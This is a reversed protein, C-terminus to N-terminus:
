PKPNRENVTYPETLEPNLTQRTTYLRPNPTGYHKSHVSNHNLVWPFCLSGLGWRGKKFEVTVLGFARWAAEMFGVRTEVTFTVSRSYARLRLGQVLAVRRASQKSRNM